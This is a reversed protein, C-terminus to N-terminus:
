EEKKRLVEKVPRTRAENLARRMPGQIRELASSVSARDPRGLRELRAGADFDEMAEARKRQALRSLGLFYFYRADANDNEVAGLFEKEADTYNRAFYFNLGAAYHREGALPDQVTRTEPRRLAPNRNVLDVLQNAYVPALLGKDRVGGAFVMLARTYLGKVALAQARVEFPVKDGQKLIEDALKEAEAQAPTLEGALEDQLMVTLLVVMDLTKLDKARAPVAAM